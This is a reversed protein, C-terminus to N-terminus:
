DPGSARSVDTLEDCDPHLPLVNESKGNWIAGVERDRVSTLAVDCNGPLLVWVKAFHLAGNNIGLENAIGKDPCAHNFRASLLDGSACPHWSVLSILVSTSATQIEGSLSGSQVLNPSPQQQPM